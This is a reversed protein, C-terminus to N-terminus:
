STLPERGANIRLARYLSVDHYVFRVFIVLYLALDTELDVKRRYVYVEGEEGGLVM